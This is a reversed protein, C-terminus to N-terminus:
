SFIVFFIGLDDRNGSRIQPVPMGEDYLSFTQHMCLINISGLSDMCFM